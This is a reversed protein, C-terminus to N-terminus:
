SKGAERMCENSELATRVAAIVQEVQGDSIEAFLPLTV